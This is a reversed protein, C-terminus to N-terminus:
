NELIKDQLEESELFDTLKNITYDAVIEKNYSTEVKVSIKGEPKNKLARPNATILVDINDWKDEYKTVFRINNIKCLTKSLFFFTAPISTNAERSIIVVEHDDTDLNALFNNFSVMMYETTLDAHGFVELPHEFYLFSNMEDKNKFKFIEYLKEFDEIDEENEQVLNNYIENIENLKSKYDNKPEEGKELLNDMERLEDCLKLFNELVDNGINKISKLEKYMFDIKKLVSSDIASGNYKDCVYKLQSTFDRIVDNLTIGIRM